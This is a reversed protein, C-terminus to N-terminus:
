AFTRKGDLGSLTQVATAASNLLVTADDHLDLIVNISDVLRFPLALLPLDETRVVRGVSKLSVVDERGFALYGHVLRLFTRVGVLSSISRKICQKHAAGM